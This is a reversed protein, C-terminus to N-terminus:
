GEYPIEKIDTAKDIFLVGNLHDLEHQMVRALFGSAEYERLEGEENWAQLKISLPREVDGYIGRISLCGEEQSDTKPSSWLIEPNIFIMDKATPDSEFLKHSVIFVRKTVGIQPASLGIGDDQTSLSEKMDSILSKTSDSLIDADKIEECMERLAPHGLQVIEKAMSPQILAHFVIM